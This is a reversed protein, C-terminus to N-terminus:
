VWVGGLNISMEMFWTHYIYHLLLLTPNYEYKLNKGIEPVKRCGSILNLEVEHIAIRRDFASTTKGFWPQSFYWHVSMWRLCLLILVTWDSAHPWITLHKTLQNLWNHQSVQVTLTTFCGHSRVNLITNNRTFSVWTSAWAESPGHLLM